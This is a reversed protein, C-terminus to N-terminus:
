QIQLKARSPNWAATTPIRPQASHTAKSPSSPSLYTQNSTGQSREDKAITKNIQHRADALHSLHKSMRWNSSPYPCKLGPCHAVQRM